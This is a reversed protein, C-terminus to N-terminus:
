CARDYAWFFCFQQTSPSPPIVQNQFITEESFTRHMWADSKTSSHILLFSTVDWSAWSETMVTRISCGFLGCVNETWKEAKIKTLHCKIVENESNLELKFGRHSKKHFLKLGCSPVQWFVAPRTMWKGCLDMWCKKTCRTTWTM